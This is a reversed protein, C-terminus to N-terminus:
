LVGGLKKLLAVTSEQVHQGGAASYGSAIKTPTEGRRNKINVDAGGDVLAQVVHNFGSPVTLHLAADGTPTVANPDLGIELCLKVAPLYDADGLPVENDAWAAGAAAMLATIGSKSRLFPDAGGALLLRMTDLDTSMAALVFPTAGTTTRMGLGKALGFGYHPPEKTMYVNPNAGYALLLAILSHKKAKPVGRLTAWQGPADVYDHPDVSEWVGSAYHLPTYGAANINVNAGKQLLLNVLEVHARVTAVLLASTGDAAVENVDVGRSLLLTTSELDGNRAAFMLPTFGGNTRADVNAGHEILLRAADRHDESLAWMLATQGKIKEKANVDVNHTLLVNVADVKGTRVATMLATEGSPLAANPDAGAKLLRETMAASGNECALMLPTVGFENAANANAGSRILLDAVALNDLHAAWHLATAGDAETANANGGAKLLTAAAALDQHRVAEIMRTQDAAASLGANLVLIVALSSASTGITRM